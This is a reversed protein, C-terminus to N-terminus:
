RFWMRPLLNQGDRLAHKLVAAVHVTILGMFAYAMIEHGTKAWDEIAANATIGPLHPWAFWGFVITPLGYPSASVMVWGSLPMLVMVAYLGWHGAKAAWKELRPFNEPLAPPHTLLRVGLRLFFALLLIVGLSKHWQYIQFQLSKDELDTMLLGSALMCLFAVAMVWHLTIALRHYRQPHPSPM